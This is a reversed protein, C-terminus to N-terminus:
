RRLRSPALPPSGFGSLRFGFCGAASLWEAKPNRIEAKGQMLECAGWVALILVGLSPLYTYRDAMPHAGTQVLQSVPVLTGCYWLWGMLLCPYRRRAAWFLVSIGLIVAGALLVKELPWQGPHPYVM